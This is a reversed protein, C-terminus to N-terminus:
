INSATERRTFIQCSVALKLGPNTIVKLGTLGTTLKLPTSAMQPSCSPPSLARTAILKEDAQERSEEYIPTRTLYLNQRTFKRLRQFLFYDFNGAKSYDSSRSFWGFKPLGARKRVFIQFCPLAMKNMM